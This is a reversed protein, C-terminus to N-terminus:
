VNDLKVNEIFEKIDDFYDIKNKIWEQDKNWWGITQLVEIEDTKFRKRIERAPNGAVITYPEVDKTVTSNAAIIAGDGIKVPAIITVGYGIYVDNGIIIPYKSNELYIKEEFRQSKVYTFGTTRKLSYFCPSTSVYQKVPHTLSLVKVNGGISCYRGIKGSINSYEGIYSAFGMKGSFYSHHEIKNYGEFEANRAVKARFGLRLNKYQIKKMIGLFIYYIERLLYRM